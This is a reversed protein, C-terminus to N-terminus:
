RGLGTSLIRALTEVTIAGMGNHCPLLLALRTEPAMMSRALNIRFRGTEVGAEDIAAIVPALQEANAFAPLAFPLRAECMARWEKDLSSDPIAHLLTRTVGARAEGAACLGELHTPLGALAEVSCAPHLLARLYVVEMWASDSARWAAQDAALAQADITPIADRRARLRAALGEDAAVVGGCMGRTGFFKPLSFVAFDGAWDRAGTDPKEFFAHCIDEIVPGIPKDMLRHGYQHILLTADVPSHDTAPDIPFATRVVADFVCQATRPPMALRSSYRNLSLEQFCLLLAARGSSTLIVPRDFWRELLAEAQEISAFGVTDSAACTPALRIAAM